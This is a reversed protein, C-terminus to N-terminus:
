EKDQYSYVGAGTKRGLNGTKVMQKLLPCPRYREGIEQHLYTLVDLVVDLGIIDSLELPGIPHGLMLKCARDIDEASGIGQWILNFAENALIPMLRNVLFGPFDKTLVPEKGLRDLVKIATELTEDSTRLGPVVEVAPSVPVPYFFHLGIFRDPRETASSIESISLSSTNTAFIVESPCAVDMDRFVKQKLDMREPVAEIVFDAERVAAGLDTLGKIRAMAEESEQTTMKGKGVVVRLGKRINELGRSVLKQDTDVLNVEFGRQACTQAIGGGMTGAGIVAIKRIEPM